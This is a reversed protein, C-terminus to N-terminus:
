VSYARKGHRIAANTKTSKLPWKAFNTMTAKERRTVLHPRRCKLTNPARFVRPPLARIPSLKKYFGFTLKM